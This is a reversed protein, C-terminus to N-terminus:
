RGPGAYATGNVKVNKVVLNTVGTFTPTATTLKVDINELTMHDIVDGANPRISGFSGYTGTVNSISINRVTHTPPAHGQLNAYQTWPAMGFIAGRGDLTIDHFRINEYLQPTDTRLKLRMMTPASGAGSAKCHDVEVDRIITAESGCTVFSGTHGFVCDYVHIHEVPPSDKDDMADVGKSGKLAIGDDNNVISCDHITINQSSDIDMGDTSPSTTPAQIDLGQIEVDHSKYVHLNWFGSNLFHLGSVKVDASNAIYVMRPRPVDLNATASNARRQTQFAAYFPTGSGDLTGAGGIRLHDVGDANVLAPLWQQFHGEIRTLRQPYDAINTSGKLVGDKEVDLGTGPKLFIAGTVFTGSPVVVIGGGAGAARDITKQIAATNLTKGDAVAGFDTIVFRAASATTPATSPMVAAPTPDAAM